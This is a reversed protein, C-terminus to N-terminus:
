GPSADPRDDQEALAIRLVGPARGRCKHVDILLSESWAVSPRPADPKSVDSRPADPRSVDSRPADPRLVDATRLSARLAAPSPAHRAGAGRLVFVLCGGARAALQLRRLARASVGTEPLWLLVLACAGSRATREAVALASRDDDGDVWLLRSLDVREGWAPAYPVYPPHVLLVRQGDEACRQVLPLLLRLEGVGHTECLLEVLSAHPWGGGPLARDLAAFGTPEVRVSRMADGDSRWVDPRRLLDDLGGGRSLPPM